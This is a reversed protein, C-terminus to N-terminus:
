RCMNLVQTSFCFAGGGRCFWFRGSAIWRRGHVEVRLSISAASSISCNDRCTHHVRAVKASTKMDEEREKARKACLEERERVRRVTGVSPYQRIPRHIGVVLSDFLRENLIIM